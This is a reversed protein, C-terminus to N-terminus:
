NQCHPCFFTSRQGQRIQRIPTGCVRCPQETRDYVLHQLQFYGSDGRSNVYDRLTSGGTDIAAQLTQQIALQLRQCRQKSIRNAATTPHIRARFLAESAYINGVGVLLKGDMIVQKIAQTRKRTAEYLYDASLSADLPEPGM